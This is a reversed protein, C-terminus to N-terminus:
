QEAEHMKEKLEEFWNHVVHLKTRDPERTRKSVLL